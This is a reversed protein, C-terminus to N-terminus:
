SMKAMRFLLFMGGVQLGMAGLLLQQGFQDKWMGALYSPNIMLIVLGVVVPLASLIWASVRTEATMARLEKQGRQRERLTLSIRELVANANGGFRMGLYFTAAMFKLDKVQWAESVQNLADELAMGASTRLLVQTFIGRLPEPCEESANRFALELSCGISLIRVVGDIFDPLQAVVQDHLREIRWSLVIATLLPYILFVGILGAIPGLFLATVPGLLLAPIALRVYLRRGPVLGARRLLDAVPRPQWPDAAPGLVADSDWGRHALAADLRHLAIAQREKEDGSKWMLVAAVLLCLIALALVAGLLTDIDLM